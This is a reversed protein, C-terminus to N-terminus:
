ENYWTEKKPVLSVEYCLEAPAWDVSLLEGCMGSVARRRNVGRNEKDKVEGEEEQRDDKCKKREVEEEEESNLWQRKGHKTLAIFPIFLYINNILVDRLRRSVVVM